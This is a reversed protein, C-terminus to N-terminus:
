GEWGGLQKKAAQSRKIAGGRNNPNVKKNKPKQNPDSPHGYGGVRLIFKSLVIEKQKAMSAFLQLLTPYSLVKEDGVRVAYGKGEVWRLLKHIYKFEGKELTLFTIGREKQTSGSDWHASSMSGRFLWAGAADQPKLSKIRGAIAKEAGIESINQFKFESDFFDFDAFTAVIFLDQEKLHEGIFYNKITKLSRKSPKQLASTDVNKYKEMVLDLHSFHLANAYSHIIPHLDKTIGGLLLTPDNLLDPLPVPYQELPSKDM